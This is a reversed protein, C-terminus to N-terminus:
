QRIGEYIRDLNESVFKWSKKKVDESIFIRDFTRNDIIESLGEAMANVDVDVIVSTENTTNENVDGVNTSLIPLGCAMAEYIVKPSGETTSSLFFLESRNMLEAIYKQGRKGKLSISDQLNLEQIQKELENRLEGEGIIILKYDRHLKHFIHFAEIMSKHDKQWRLNGVTIIYEDRNDNEKNFLYFLSNDFGNGLYQIDKRNINEIFKKSLSLNLDTLKFILRLFKFNQIRLGDTGHISLVVKSGFFVKCYLGTLLYIPSYLHVIQPKVSHLFGISKVTFIFTSFVKYILNLFFKRDGVEGLGKNLTKVKKIKVNDGVELYKLGRDETLVYSKYKSYKSHFYSNTGSGPNTHSAFSPTVRLVNSLKKSM